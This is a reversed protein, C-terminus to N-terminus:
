QCEQLDFEGELVGRKKSKQLTPSKVEEEDSSTESECKEAPGEYEEESNIKGYRDEYFGGIKKHGGSFIGKDANRLKRSSSPPTLYHSAFM